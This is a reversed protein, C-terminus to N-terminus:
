PAHAGPGREPSGAPYTIGLERELLAAEDARLGGRADLLDPRVSLTRAIAQARRWRAVRGHDGSLLVDPVSWGRFVAPRTYQPYELLGDAFSEDDASQENGMVGPVLRGVVELVVMAAVEGGGLVYDGVSLEGDVLHERVRADVGEYRGCLLSFGDLAALEHAMAQDLRRGGPGLLYLPRPPAVAEVARFLPEAMLVMGAGGGYPSDDVSRHPDNAGSRLDHVRVDVVGRERGKGLLSQSAFGDVMAPFITFVDIRM